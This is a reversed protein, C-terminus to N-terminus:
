LARLRKLLKARENMDAVHNVIREYLDAADTAKRSAQRVLHVAIPGLIKTLELTVADLLPQNFVVAPAAVVPQTGPTTPRRAGEDAPANKLFAARKEANLIHAALMRYLEAADRAQVADVEVLKSALPGLYVTLEGEARRVLEPDIGGLIMRCRELAAHYDGTFDVRQLRSIRIPIDCAELLVPIVGKGYDIAFGVEDLVNESAVARPSLVVV